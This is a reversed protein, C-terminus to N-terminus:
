IDDAYAISLPKYVIVGGFRSYGPVNFNLGVEQPPQMEWEQPVEMTLKNPSRRYVLCRDVGAGGIDKLETLWTVNKIFPNSELFFKLVTMNSDVGIKKSAILTYQEIPMIMTDPTEIGKTVSIPTNAIQNLDRIIQDATKTSWAKSTGTGDNLVTVSTANPHDLFGQLGYNADGEFALKNELRLASERTDEARRRDLPFGTKRGAKLEHISYGFMAGLTRVVSTYERGKVDIRPLDDAMDAIIKAIGVKDYMRYTISETAPDAEFSVPILQRAKLEPYDQEFVESKIHELQRSFFVSEGSDLRTSNIKFPPM